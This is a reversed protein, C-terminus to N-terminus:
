RAPLLKDPTIPLDRVRAGTAHHVANAIAAATGVIGIEGLGKAGMPNYYPDPEGLCFAEIAGADAHVAIHYAALDGNAIRGHRPDLDGSEHLAMSLGMTMGGILQSRGTRTNIVRGVDFVGLLRPVRVEGTDARVRVEAFQAGFAHLAHTGLYPNGPDTAQARAGAPPETSHRARLEGAAAHIATGWNSTGMAGAAAGARPLTSDGIRLDVADLDVGLANAAIQALATWAGTGIDSAGIEVRYRGAGLATIRATSGSGEPRGYMPYTAGAVGTGILWGDRERARPLPDRAAWGFRRAGERLCALLHRSSYPLGTEPDAPPENRVRLEVPDLGCAAALEDMASELAFMGPAEGPARMVTAAPVDLRALRHTTRRAPAAYMTRTALATQEAYELVTSTSSVCDHAIAALRGDGDAGLRVRQITPPRYGAVTFMQPRTLAFRVARGGAMRAALCALVQHPKPRVKSGFAGGVFPSVVTIREPDLGLVPALAYQVRSAGQNADYLTLRDNGGPDAWTAVCTHPEIPNHFEPPTTYRADVTVAAAALAAVVDGLATDTALAPNVTAPAYLDPRDGSLTVDHPEAAYRVQVLAAAERAAEPSEALVAAVFQGRYRVEPSQLVWLNRDAACVLRPANEHSLVVIVGAVREAASADVGTVRGRAITSGVAHLYAPRIVPQDAAYPAAGTAKAPGDLRAPGTGVAAVRGTTISM